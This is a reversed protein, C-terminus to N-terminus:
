EKPSSQEKQFYRLRVILERYQQPHMADKFILCSRKKGAPEIPEFRIVSLCQTVTSDGLVRAQWRTSGEHFQWGDSDHIM